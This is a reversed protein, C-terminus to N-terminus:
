VDLKVSPPPRTDGAEYSHSASDTATVEVVKIGAVRARRVMDATGTGGPFALVLDPKGKNIMQQNRIPGAANKLKKWDAPFEIFSVWNVAAWDVAATDAGSAAGSIIVTDLPPLWTTPDNEDTPFMASLTKHVFQYEAARISWLPTGRKVTKLDGFKRGGCVLIRM